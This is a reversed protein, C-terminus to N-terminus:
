DYSFLLTTFLMIFSNLILAAAVLIIGAALPYFLIKLRPQERTIQRFWRVLRRFEESFLLLVLFFGAYQLVAQFIGAV